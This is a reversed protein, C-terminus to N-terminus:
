MIIYVDMDKLKTDTNIDLKSDAIIKDLFSKKLIEIM